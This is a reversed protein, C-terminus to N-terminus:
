GPPFGRGMRAAGVSWPCEVAVPGGPPDQSWEGSQLPRSDSIRLVVGIPRPARVRFEQTGIVYWRECVSVEDLFRLPGQQPEVALM